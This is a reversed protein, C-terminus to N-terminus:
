SLLKSSLCPSFVSLLLVTLSLVNVDILFFSYVQSIIGASLGVNLVILEVIRHLGNIYIIFFFLHKYVRQREDIFWNCRVREM